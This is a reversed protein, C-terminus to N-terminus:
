ECSFCRGPSADRRGPDLVVCHVGSVVLKLSQHAFTTFQSNGGRACTRNSQPVCFYRSGSRHCTRLPEGAAHRHRTRRSPCPHGVWGGQWECPCHGSVHQWRAAGGYPDRMLSPLPLSCMPLPSFLFFSFLVRDTASCHRAPVTGNLKRRISSLLGGHLTSTKEVKNTSGVLVGPKTVVYSYPPIHADLLRSHMDVRLQVLALARTATSTLTACRRYATLDSWGVEGM